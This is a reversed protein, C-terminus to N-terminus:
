RGRLMGAMRGLTWAAMGAALLFALEASRVFDYGHEKCTRWFISLRDKFSLPKSSITQSYSQLSKGYTFAKRLYTVPGDMELHSVGMGPVFNVAACGAGDVVRRVFITDSGRARDDFPGFREWASRRVAMTNTFGYYKLPENSTLVWRDKTGEYDGILRNLGLDPAPRRMGLAVLCDDDYHFADAVAQLWGGAVVCDPDTFALIEGRAVAVGRNRAAYAGHVAESLFVIDPFSRIIEVSNDTSGNDVCILESGPVTVLERRLAEHFKPLTLAANLVPVVISISKTPRM